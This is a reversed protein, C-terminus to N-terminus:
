AAPEEAAPTEEAADEPLAEFKEHFEAQWKSTEESTMAKIKEAMEPHASEVHAWAADMMEKETGGSVAADCPGGLASCTMTKM